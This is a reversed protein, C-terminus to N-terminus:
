GIKGSNGVGMQAIDRDYQLIEQPIDSPTCHDLSM